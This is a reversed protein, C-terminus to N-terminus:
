YDFINTMSHVYEIKQKETNYFIIQITNRTVNKIIYMNNFNKNRTITKNFKNLTIDTNNNKSIITPENINPSLQLPISINHQESLKIDKKDCYDISNSIGM